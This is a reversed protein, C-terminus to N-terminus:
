LGKEFFDGMIARHNAKVISCCTKVLFFVEVDDETQDVKEVQLNRCHWM